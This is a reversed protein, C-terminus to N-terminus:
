VFKWGDSTVKIGFETSECLTKYIHTHDYGGAHDRWDTVEFVLAELTVDIDCVGRIFTEGKEEIIECSVVTVQPSTVEVTDATFESGDPADFEYDFSCVCQEALEGAYEDLFEQVIEENIDSISKM